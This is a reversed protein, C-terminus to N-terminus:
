AEKRAPVPQPYPTTFSAMSKEGLACAGRIFSLDPAELVAGGRLGVRRRDYEAHFADPLDALRFLNLPKRGALMHSLEAATVGMREALEEHKWGLALRAGEICSALARSKPTHGIWAVCIM